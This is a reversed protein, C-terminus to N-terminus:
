KIMRITIENRNLSFQIFKKHPLHDRIDWFDRINLQLAIQQKIKYIKKFKHNGNINKNLFLEIISVALVADKIDKSNLM